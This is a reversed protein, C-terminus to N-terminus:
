QNLSYEGTLWSFSKTWKMIISSIQNKASQYYHFKNSFHTIFKEYELQYPFYNCIMYSFIFVIFNDSKMAFSFFSVRDEKTQCMVSLIICKVDAVEIVNYIVNIYIYLHSIFYIRIFYSKHVIECVLNLICISLYLANM